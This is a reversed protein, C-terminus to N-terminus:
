ESIIGIQLSELQSEASSSHPTGSGVSDGSETKRETFLTTGDKGCAAIIEDGGQHRPIYETIDYVNKNIITWCDNKSGHEAVQAITFTTPATKIEATNNTTKQQNSSSVQASQNETSETSSSSFLVLFLALLGVAGAVTLGIIIKRNM